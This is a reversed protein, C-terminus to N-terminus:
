VLSWLVLLTGLLRKERRTRNLGRICLSGHCAVITVLVPVPAPYLKLFRYQTFMNKPTRVGYITTEGTYKDLSLNHRERGANQNFSSSPPFAFAVGLSGDIEGRRASRKM